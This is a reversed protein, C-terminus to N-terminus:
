EQGNRENWEKEKGTKKGELGKWEMGEIEGM